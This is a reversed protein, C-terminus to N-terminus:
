VMFCKSKHVLQETNATTLNDDRSERSQSERSQRKGHSKQERRELATTLLWRDRSILIIVHSSYGCCCYFMLMDIM